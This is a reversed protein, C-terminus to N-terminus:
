RKKVFEQERLVDALKENRSQYEDIFRDPVILPLGQMQSKLVIALFRLWQSVKKM